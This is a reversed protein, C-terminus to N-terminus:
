IIVWNQNFTLAKIGGEWARVGEFGKLILPRLKRDKILIRAM